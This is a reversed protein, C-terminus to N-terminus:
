DRQVFTVIHLFFRGIVGLIVHSPVSGNRALDLSLWKWGKRVLGM